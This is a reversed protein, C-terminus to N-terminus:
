RPVSGASSAVQAAPAGLGLTAKLEDVFRQHPPPCNRHWNALYQEFSNYGDAPDRNLYALAGWGGPHRLFVPLLAQAIVDNLDRHYPYRRLHELRGALWRTAALEESERRHPEAQLQDSFRRLAVARRNWDGGASPAEWLQAVAGLAYLSAAECLAEEFWQNTKHTGNEPAATAGYNSMVHCLEHAFEYVFLGWQGERAHLMVRYEGNPGREYLVVPNRPNHAVLLRAELPRATAALLQAAVDHLASEIDATSDATWAGPEILISLGPPRQRPKDGPAQARALACVTLTGLM